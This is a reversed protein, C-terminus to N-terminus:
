FKKKHIIINLNNKIDNIMNKRYMYVKDKTNLNKSYNPDYIYNEFDEELSELQSNLNYIYEFEDDNLDKDIKKNFIVLKYIVCYIDNICKLVNEQYKFEQLYKETINDKIIDVNNGIILLNNKM